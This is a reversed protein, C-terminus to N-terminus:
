RTPCSRNKITIDIISEKDKAIKDYIADFREGYSSLWLTINNDVCKKMFSIPITYGCVAVDDRAGDSYGIDLVWKRGNLKKKNNSIWKSCEEIQNDLDWGDSSPNLKIDDGVDNTKIYSAM